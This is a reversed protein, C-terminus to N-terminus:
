TKFDAVAQALRNAADLLDSAASAMEETSATKQVGLLQYLDKQNAM